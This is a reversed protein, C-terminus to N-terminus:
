THCQLRSWARSALGRDVVQHIMGIAHVHLQLCLAMVNWLTRAQTAEDYLGTNAFANILAGHTYADPAIGAQQMEAVLQSATEADHCHAAAIIAANYGRVCPAIGYRDRLM